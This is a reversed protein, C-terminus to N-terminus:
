GARRVYLEGFIEEQELWVARWTERAPTLRREILLRMARKEEETTPNERLQKEADFDLPNDGLFEIALKQEEQSM